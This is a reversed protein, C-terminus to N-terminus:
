CKNSRNVDNMWLYKKYKHYISYWVSMVNVDCNTFIAYSKKCSDKKPLQSIITKTKM